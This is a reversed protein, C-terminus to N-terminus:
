DGGDGFPDAWAVPEGSALDFYRHEAADRVRRVHRVSASVAGYGFVVSAIGSAGGHLAIGLAREGRIGDPVFSGGFLDRAHAPVDSTAGDRMVCRFDRVGEFVFRVFAYDAGSAWWPWPTVILVREGMRDCAILPQEALRDLVSRVRGVDLPEIM